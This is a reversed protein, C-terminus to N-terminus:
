KNRCRKSATRASPWENKLKQIAVKINDDANFVDWPRWLYRKSNSAWTARLFQFVWSATSSKNKANPRYWSECWGIKLALDADYEYKKSYYKILWVVDTPKKEEYPPLPPYLKYKRQIAIKYAIPNELITQNYCLFQSCLFMWSLLLWTM